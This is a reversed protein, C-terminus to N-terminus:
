PNVAQKKQFCQAHRLSRLWPCSSDACSTAQCRTGAALVARVAIKVAVSVPRCRRSSRGLLRGVRMVVYHGCTPDKPYKISM